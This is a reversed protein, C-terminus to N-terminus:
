FISKVMLVVDIWEHLGVGRYEIEELQKKTDHPLSIEYNYVLSALIAICEIIVFRMGIFSHTGASFALVLCFRM